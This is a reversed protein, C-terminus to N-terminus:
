ASLIRKLERRVPFCTQVQIDFGCRTRDSALKLERRVPFCTQVLKLLEPAVMRNLKLERRVPFCTQVYSPLMM